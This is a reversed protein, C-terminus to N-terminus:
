HAPSPQDHVYHRPTRDPHGHPSTRPLVVTILFATYAVGAIISSVVLAVICARFIRNPVLNHLFWLILM